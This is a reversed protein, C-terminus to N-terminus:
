LMAEEATVSETKTITKPQIIFNGSSKDVVFNIQGYSLAYPVEGAQSTTAATKDVDLSLTNVSFTLGADSEATTASYVINKESQLNLYALISLASKAKDSTRDIFITFDATGSAGTPDFNMFNDHYVIDKSFSVGLPCTKGGCNESGFHIINYHGKDDFTMKSPDLSKVAPNFKTYAAMAAQDVSEAKEYSYALILPTEEETAIVAQDDDSLFNTPIYSDVKGVAKLYALAGEKDLKSFETSNDPGEDFTSVPNSEPKQPTPQNSMILMTAVGAIAVVAIGVLAILLTKNNKKKPTLDESVAPNPSVTQTPQNPLTASEVSSPVDTVAPTAESQPEPATPAETPATENSIEGLTSEVTAAPAAEPQAEPTEPQPEPAPQPESVPETSTPQQPTGGGFEPMATAPPIVPAPAAPAAAFEPMSSTSPTPAAPIIPNNNEM